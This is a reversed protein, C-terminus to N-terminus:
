NTNRLFYNPPVLDVHLHSWNYNYFLRGDDSQALGWQGRFETRDRIWEGRRFRYRNNSKANYWWNDINRVMGNAQHEPTGGSAYQPDIVETQDAKGDGDLDRAFLLQGGAVIMAGGSVAAVARPLLLGDLFLTSKDVRGDGDSDELISVRGVPEEEGH